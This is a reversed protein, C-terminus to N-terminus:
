NRIASDLWDCRLKGQRHLRARLRVYLSPAFYLLFCAALGPEPALLAAPALGIWGLVWFTLMLDWLQYEVSRERHHTQHWRKVTALQQLTM